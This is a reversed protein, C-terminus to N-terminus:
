APAPLGLRARAEPHRVADPHDQVYQQLVTTFSADAALGLRPARVSEFRAPWAAVIGAIAADPVHTVLRMVEPGALTEFASLMERVSVTLAPLNLATRGGFAERSAEAVAM